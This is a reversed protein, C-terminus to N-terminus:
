VVENRKVFVYGEMLGSAPRDYDPGKHVGKGVYDINDIESNLGSVVGASSHLGKEEQTNLRTGSDGTPNHPNRQASHGPGSSLALSSLVKFPEPVGVVEENNEEDVPM